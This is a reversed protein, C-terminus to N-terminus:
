IDEELMDRLKEKARKIRTGVTGKPIRLIKAIEAIPYGYYFHLLVVERCKDDLSLVARLVERNQADDPAALEVCEDISATERHSRLRKKCENSTVRVLWYRLHDDSEFDKATRYLKILVEQTVDEADPVCRLRALALRYIM